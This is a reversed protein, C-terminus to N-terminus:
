GLLRRDELILDLEGRLFHDIGDNLNFWRPDLYAAHEVFLDWYWAHLMDEANCRVVVLSSGPAMAATSVVGAGCISVFLTSELGLRAQEELMMEDVVYSEVSVQYEHQDTPRESLANSLQSIRDEWEPTVSALAITVRLNTEPQKAIQLEKRVHQSFLVLSAGLAHNHTYRHQRPVVTTTQQPIRRWKQSQAGDDSLMGMGVVAHPACIYSISDDTSSTDERLDKTTPIRQAAGLLMPTLKHFVASCAAQNSPSSECTDTLLEGDPHVYRVPLIDDHRSSSAMGFIELLKFIPMFNDWLLHAPDMANVAHFPVLVTNEPLMLYGKTRDLEQAPLVRPFWRLRDRAAKDWDSDISGISLSSANFSLLTSITVAFAAANGAVRSKREELLRQLKAEQSSQFVVFDHEKTDWCLNRFHCSRYMWANSSFDEGVCHVFSRLRSEGHELSIKRKGFILTGSSGRLNNTDLRRHDREPSTANIIKSRGFGSTNSFISASIELGASARFSLLYFFAIARATKSLM